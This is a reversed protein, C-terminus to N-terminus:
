TSELFYSQPPNLCFHRRWCAQLLAEQHFRSALFSPTLLSPLGCDMLSTTPQTPLFSCYVLCLKLLVFCPSACGSWACSPLCPLAVSLLLFWFGMHPHLDKARCLCPPAAGVAWPSSAEHEFGWKECPKISSVAHFLCDQDMSQM